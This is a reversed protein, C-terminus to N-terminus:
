YFSSHPKKIVCTIPLRMNIVSNVIITCIKEGFIEIHSLIAVTLLLIYVYNHHMGLRTSVLASM